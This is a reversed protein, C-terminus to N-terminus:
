RPEEASRPVLGEAGQRHGRRDRRRHQSREGAHQIAVDGFLGAPIGLGFPNPFDLESGFNIMNFGDAYGTIKRNNASDKASLLVSNSNALSTNQNSNAAYCTSM